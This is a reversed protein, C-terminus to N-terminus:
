ILDRLDQIGLTGWALGLGLDSSLLVLAASPALVAPMRLPGMWAPLTSATVAAGAAAAAAAPLEGDNIDRALLPSM